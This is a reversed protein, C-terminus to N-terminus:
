AALAEPEVLEVAQDHARYIAEIPVDFRAAARTILTAWRRDRSNVPGDGPNTFLFAVTHGPERGDLVQRLTGLLGDAVRPSPRHPIEMDVLTKMFCRDPGVFVIRLLTEGFGLPGILALWRQGLDAPSCIPDTATEMPPAASPNTMHCLM